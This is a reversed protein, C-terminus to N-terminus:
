AVRVLDVTVALGGGPADALHLTGGHLAALDRVIALGFGDGGGREDLRVGPEVARAQDAADIGPGDDVITLRITAREAAATIAVRSTAHRAANDIVNGALEDLDAPDIAVVADGPIDQTFVIGRDAHLRAITAVLDGIAPALPTAARRDAIGGRARALHHRITQYLRDVQAARAPDGRLELALTAVPTKLAHALNAASARATELAAANDRVLANLEVALPKLETPRDEDIAGSRGTRIAAVDDRLRRLPRLGLRLQVLAAAGLALGVVALIVLLPVLAGRIPRSVVQWPAAATLTVAGAGSPIVLSRAHLPRGDRDHGDRPRPRDEPGRDEPRHPDPLADLVPFDASSASGRPGAIRWRWGRDRELAREAQVLRERDIAGTPTVATALLSLEADLRQDLGQVVFRELVGVIAAGAIALAILTAIASLALMRGEISRPVVRM